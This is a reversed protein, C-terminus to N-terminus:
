VYRYMKRVKFWKNQEVVNTEYVRYIYFQFGFKYIYSTKWGGVAKKEAIANPRAYVVTPLTKFKCWFVSNFFSKM